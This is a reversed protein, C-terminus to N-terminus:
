GSLKGIGVVHDRAFPCFWTAEAGRERPELSHAEQPHLPCSPWPRVYGDFLASEQVQAVLNVISDAHGYSEPYEGKLEIAMHEEPLGILCVHKEM